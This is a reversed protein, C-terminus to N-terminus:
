MASTQEDDKKALIICGPSKLRLVYLKGADDDGGSSPTDEVGLVDEGGGAGDFVQAGAGASAGPVAVAM